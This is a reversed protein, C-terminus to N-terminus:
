LSVEAIFDLAFGEEKKEKKRNPILDEGDEDENNIGRHLLDRNHYNDSEDDDDYVLQDREYDDKLDDDLDYIKKKNTKRKQLYLRLVFFCPPLAWILSLFM